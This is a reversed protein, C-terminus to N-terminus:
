KLGRLIKLTFDSCVQYSMSANNFKHTTITNTGMNKFVKIFHCFTTIDKFNANRESM